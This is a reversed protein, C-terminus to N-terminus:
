PKAGELAKRAIRICRNVRAHCSLPDDSQYAGTSIEELAARYRDREEAIAMTARSNDALHAIAKDYMLQLEQNRAAIVDASTIAGYARPGCWAEAAAETAKDSPKDSM